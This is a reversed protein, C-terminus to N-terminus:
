AGGASEAAWDVLAFPVPPSGAAALAPFEGRDFRGRFWACAPPLPVDEEWGDLATLVAREGVVLIRFEGVGQRRLYVALPCNYAGDREGRCGLAALRRAVGGSTSGLAALARTVRRVAADITWATSGRWPDVAVRVGVEGVSSM